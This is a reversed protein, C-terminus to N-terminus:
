VSVHERRVLQSFCFREGKKVGAKFGVSAGFLVDLWLASLTLNGKKADQRRPTFIEQWLRSAWREDVCIRM